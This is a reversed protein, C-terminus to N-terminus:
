RPPATGETAKPNPLTHAATRPPDTTRNSGPRRSEKTSGFHDSIFRAIALPEHPTLRPGAGRARQREVAAVLEEPAITSPVARVGGDYIDELGELKMQTYADDYLGVVPVGAAAAFVALHYRTGVAVAARGVVGLIVDDAPLPDLVRLGARERLSARMAEAAITDAGPGLYMPVFLLALGAAALHDAVQALARSVAPDEHDGRAAFAVFPASGGIGLARLVYEIEEEPAPELWTADDLAEAIRSGPVRLRKLMAGSRDRDRVTVLSARRLALSAILRDALGTFPGATVGSVVVSIGLAHAALMTAAQPWLAARSYASTLSGASLALLLDASRLEDLFPRKNRYLIGPSRGLRVRRAAHVLAATRLALRITDRPRRADLRVRRLLYPHVSEAGRHGFRRATTGPDESFVVPELDPAAETLWRVNATVIADDGVHRDPGYGGIVAVYRGREVEIDAVDGAGFRSADEHVLDFELAYPGPADPATVLACVHAAEGPAVDAPLTTRAEEGVQKGAHTRWCHALHVRPRRGGWPWTLDGLNEVRVDFPRRERLTMSQEPQDVAIRGHYASGTTPRAEWLRDVEERRVLRPKSRPASPPGDRGGDLVRRVLEYDEAPVPALRPNRWREPLYLTNLPLGAIRVGPRLREYARAKRARDATSHIICDAHYLPLDVLKTPGNVHASTHVEGPFALLAPDNRVLRLQYDPLWPPTALYSAADPYLWRRAFSCYAVERTALGPLAALLAASPIEDSDIRFIWECTCQSHLWALCREVPPAFPVQILDDAFAACANVTEADADADVAVVIEDAVPRLLELLAGIRGAPGNTVCCVSLSM